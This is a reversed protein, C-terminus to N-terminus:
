GQFGRRNFDECLDKHVVSFVAAARLLEGLRLVGGGVVVVCVGAM